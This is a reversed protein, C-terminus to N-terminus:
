QTVNLVKWGNINTSDTYTIYCTNNDSIDKLQEDEIQKPPKQTGTFIMRTWYIKLKTPSKHLYSKIFKEYYKKNDLVIVETDLYRKTKKMFLKSIISSDITKFKCSNSAIISLDNALIITSITIISLIYRM